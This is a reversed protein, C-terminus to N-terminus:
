FHLRWGALMPLTSLLSCWMLQDHLSISTHERLRLMYCSQALVFWYAHGGGAGVHEVWPGLVQLNSSAAAAHLLGNCSTVAHCHLAWICSCCECYMMHCNPVARMCGQLWSSLVAKARHSPPPLLRPTPLRWCDGAPWRLCRLYCVAVCLPWMHRNQLSVSTGM